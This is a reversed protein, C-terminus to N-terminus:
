EAVVVRNRGGNKAAYLAEDAAALLSERADGHEPFAAVGMSLTAPRLVQGRHTVSLHSAAARIQGARHRATAISAEPLILVFEEGGYRCAIDGGRLNAKFLAGLDRLLLDGAEHGYDDNFSKFHDVDVMIVAVAEHGRMARRIERDLSEEMYRRNFLGTLPDRISQSRLTERLRLNALALALREAVGQALAPPPPVDDWLHLMGLTEGLAVLPTCLYAEPRPEPVHLCAAGTSFSDVPNPRGLRLAWCEEPRFVSEVGGGPRVGWHAMVEVLNRSATIIGVAGGGVPFLLPMHRGIVAYAEHATHCAQLMEGLQNLLDLERTRDAVLQNVHGTLQERQREGAAMMESLRRAMENFAEAVITIEDSGRVEARAGLDGLSIRNATQALVHLRSLFLTNGVLYAIIIAGLSVLTLALLNRSRRLDVGAYVDDRDLGIILRLAGGSGPVVSYANLRTVGDAGRTELFGEDHALAAARLDAEPLPRGALGVGVPNAALVAGRDDLLLVNSAGPLRVELLAKQLANLDLSALALERPRGGEDLIPQLLPLSARRTLPEVQYDGVVFDKWDSAARFAPLDRLHFGPPTPVACVRVHGDPAVLCLNAYDPNKDLLRVLLQHARLSDPESAGLEVLWVLLHRAGDLQRGVGGAELRSLQRVRYEADARGQRRTELDSFFVLGAAPALALLILLALNVRLSGGKLRRSINM